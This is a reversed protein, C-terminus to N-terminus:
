RAHCIGRCDLFRSPWPIQHDFFQICISIIYIKLFKRTPAATTLPELAVLDLTSTATPIPVTASEVLM